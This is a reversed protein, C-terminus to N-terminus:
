ASPLAWRQASADAERISVPFAPHLRLNLILATLKAGTGTQRLSECSQGGLGADM